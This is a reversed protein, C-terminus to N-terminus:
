CLTTYKRVDNGIHIPFLLTTHPCVVSKRGGLECSVKKGLNVGCKKQFFTDHSNPPLFLTTHIPPVFFTDHSNPFFTHHSDSPLFLTTHIPHLNANTPWRLRAIIIIIISKNIYRWCTPHSWRSLVLEFGPRFGPKICTKLLISTISNPCVAFFRTSFRSLVLRLCLRLRLRLRLRLTSTRAWATAEIGAEFM